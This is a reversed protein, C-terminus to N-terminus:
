AGDARDRQPTPGQDADHWEELAALTERAFSEWCGLRRMLPEIEDYGMHLTRTHTDFRM